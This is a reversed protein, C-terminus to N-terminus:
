WAGVGFRADIGDDVCVAHTTTTTTTADKRRLRFFLRGGFGSLVFLVVKGTHHINHAM